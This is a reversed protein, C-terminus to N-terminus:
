IAEEGVSPSPRVSRRLYAFLDEVLDEPDARGKGDAALHGALAQDAAGHALALILAALREPDGAPLEGSGQAAAVAEVLRERSRTAAEALESTGGRNWRGFVLKFREPYRLAWRVYGLMLAKADPPPGDEGVHGRRNLERAAVAALLDDKDKFHKYPANHSVGAVRGVERLTVAAPGGQDLLQAAASILSERRSETMANQHAPRNVVDVWTALNVVDVESRGAM